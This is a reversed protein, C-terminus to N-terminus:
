FAVANRTSVCNSLKNEVSNKQGPWALNEIFEGKNMWMYESHESSIKVESQLDVEAVFVPIMSISDDEWSYFSNVNPLVWMKRPNLKTEEEIERIAAEFAKEGANVSGTVMQWLNPYFSEPSRKLALFELDAGNRRFIHAEILDAIIKM